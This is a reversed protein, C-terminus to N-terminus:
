DVISKDNESPSKCKKQRVQEVKQDHEKLKLKREIVVKEHRIGAATVKQEVQNMLEEKKTEISKRLMKGHEDHKKLRDLMISINEQRQDAAAKLKQSMQERTKQEQNELSLRASEVANLHDKLKSKIENLYAERKENHIELKKDLKEKQQKTRELEEEGKKKLSLELKEFRLSLSSRKSAEVSLRREEAAKLKEFIDDESVNKIPSSPRKQPPDTAAEALIVDYKLGGKAEETCRIETAEEVGM